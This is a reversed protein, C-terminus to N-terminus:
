RGIRAAIKTARSARDRGITRAIREALRDFKPDTPPRPPLSAILVQLSGGAMVAEARRQGKGFGPANVCAVAVLELKGEVPRWDGSWPTSRLKQVQGETIDPALTGAIWIGHEDEGVNVYAGIWGTNDYHQMAPRAGLVNNMGDRKPAHGSDVTIRGVPITDGDATLYGPGSRYWSYSSPSKPPSVCKGAMGIHCEGWTAIYGYIRGEATVTPATLDDPRQFWSTPAHAPGGAAVLAAADVAEDVAEDSDDDSAVLADLAARWNEVSEGIGEAIQGLSVDEVAVDDVTAELAELATRVAAVITLDADSLAATITGAAVAEILSEAFAPMPVLAAGLIKAKHFTILFNGDEDEEWTVDAEDAAVDVSVGRMFGDRVQRAAKRGEESELDFAGEASVLSNARSIVDIRGVTEVSYHDLTLSLPLERWTLAGEDFMRGDDTHVGEPALVASWKEPLEEETADDGEGIQLCRRSTVELTATRRHHTMTARMPGGAAVRPVAAKNLIEQVQGEAEILEDDTLGQRGEREITEAPVEVLVQTCRCNIVNGASGSPDGPYDLQEGGVDFPEDLPVTQGDALAHDPRVRNDLTSMWQKYLLPPDDMVSQAHRVGDLAGGNYARVVETRAVTEAHTFVHEVTTTLRESLAEISEGVRLGEILSDRLQAIMEEGPSRVLQEFAATRVRDAVAGDPDFFEAVSEGIALGGDRAAKLYIGTLLPALEDGVLATWEGLLVQLDTPDPDPAATVAKPVDLELLEVAHRLVLRLARRLARFFREEVPLFAELARDRAAQTVDVEPDPM